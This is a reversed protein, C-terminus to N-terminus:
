SSRKKKATSFFRVITLLLPVSYWFPLESKILLIIKRKDLFLINFLPRLIGGDFFLTSKANTEADGILELAATRFKSDKYMSLFLPMEEACIDTVYEEFYIDDKMSKDEEYSVILEKWKTYLEKYIRRRALVALDEFAHYLKTKLVFHQTKNSDYFVLLDPLYQSVASVSSKKTIMGLIVDHPIYSSLTSGEQNKFDFINSVTFLYPPRELNADITKMYEGKEKNALEIERYFDNYAQVIYTSQLLSLHIAIKEDDDGIYERIAPCLSSLFVSLIAEGKQINSKINVTNNLLEETFRLIHTKLNTRAMILKQAFYQSRGRKKLYLQIKKLAEDLLRTKILSFLVVVNGCKEPMKLCIVPIDSKDECSLLSAFSRQFDVNLILNEPISEQANVRNPFNHELKEGAASWLERIHETFFARIFIFEEDERMEIIVLKDSILADLEAQFRERPRNKWGEWPSQSESHKETKINAILILNAYFEKKNIYANKIKLAYDKLLSYLDTDIAM